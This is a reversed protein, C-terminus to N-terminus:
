DVPVYPPTLDGGYVYVKPEVETSQVDVSKDAGVLTGGNITLIMGAKGPYNASEHYIVASASM